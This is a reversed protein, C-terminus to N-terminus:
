RGRLRRRRCITADHILNSTKAFPVKAIVNREHDKGDALLPRARGTTWNGLAAFRALRQGTIGWSDDCEFDIPFKGGTGMNETGM